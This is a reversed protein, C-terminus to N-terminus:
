RKAPIEYSEMGVNLEVSQFAPSLPVFILKKHGKGTLKLSKSKKPKIAVFEVNQGDPTSLRGILKELTRNEIIVSQEDFMKNPALVQVHDEFNRVIFTESREQSYLTQAMPFVLSFFLIFHIFGKIKM